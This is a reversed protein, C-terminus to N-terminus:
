WIKQGNERILSVRFIKRNHQGARPFATEAEHFALGANLEREVSDILSILEKKSQKGWRTQGWRGPWRQGLTEVTDRKETAWRGTPGNRSQTVLFTM